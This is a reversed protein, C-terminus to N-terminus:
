VLAAAVISTEREPSTSAPELSLLLQDQRGIRLKKMSQRLFPEFGVSLEWDANAETVPEFLERM